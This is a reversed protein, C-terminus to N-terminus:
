PMSELIVRWLREMELLPTAEVDNDAFLFGQGYIKTGNVCCGENLRLREPTADSSGPFLFASIRPVSEGDLVCPSSDVAKGIVVASVVVAAEGPWKIRRQAYLIAGAEHLIVKLGGERTDGQSVTNSAILGLAARSRLLKFAGRFFYGVLDMRDGAEAFAAFLWRLYSKGSASSIMTGGLFPPNGVIADFGPNERGFVEPFEIEWHFPTVGFRERLEDRDSGASGRPGAEELWKTLRMLTRKGSKEREKDKDAAFFAAIALDGALRVLSLQKTSLSSSSASRRPSVVDGADLIRKRYEGATKIRGAILGQAGMFQKGKGEAWHFRGIQDRTLGVLSDGARLAHDLFTFPHDKALTALWLSLKALDVAMPNKDVGYLCRQAVLRRAHLLEDEDPPLKPVKHGHWGRGVRRRAPPLGGRPLRRLGHGPRLDQPRPDRRPDAQRRPRNFIPELTTRVIPETLSRPTYHSGSRRREDTPQLVM